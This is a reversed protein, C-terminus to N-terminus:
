HLMVLKCSSAQQLTVTLFVVKKVSMILALFVIPELMPYTEYILYQNVGDDVIIRVFSTDSNFVIDGSIGIGTVTNGSFPNIVSDNIFTSNISIAINFNPTQAFASVCVFILIFYLLKRM